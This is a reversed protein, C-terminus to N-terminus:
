VDKSLQNARFTSRGPRPFPNGGIRCAPKKTLTVFSAAPLTLRSQESRGLPRINAMKLSIPDTASQRKSCQRSRRPCALLQRLFQLGPATQGELLVVILPFTRCSNVWRDLAEDYEPIQWKGIGAPGILLIFASAAAIEQALQATWSGGARLHTPAFFLRSAADKHEIAAKGAFPLEPVLAANL